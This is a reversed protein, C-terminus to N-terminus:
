SGERDTLTILADVTPNRTPPNENSQMGHIHRDLGLLSRKPRQVFAYTM